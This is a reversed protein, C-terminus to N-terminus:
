AHTNRVRSPLSETDRDLAAEVVVMVINIQHVMTLGIVSAIVMRAKIAVLRAALVGPIAIIGPRAQDPVVEVATIAAEGWQRVWVLVAVRSIEGEDWIDAVEPDPSSRLTLHM